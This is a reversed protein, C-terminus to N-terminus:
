PMYNLHCRVWTDTVSLLLSLPLWWGVQNKVLFDDGKQARVSGPDRVAPARGAIVGGRRPEWGDSEVGDTRGRQKVERWLGM